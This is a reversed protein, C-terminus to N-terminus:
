GLMNQLYKTDLETPAFHYKFFYSSLQKFQITSLYPILELTYM